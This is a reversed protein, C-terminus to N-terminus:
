LSQGGEGSDGDGIGIMLSREFHLRRERFSPLMAREREDIRQNGGASLRTVQRDEMVIGVELEDDADGTLGVFPDDRSAAGVSAGGGCSTSGVTGPRRRVGMRHYTPTASVAPSQAMDVAQPPKKPWAGGTTVVDGRPAAAMVAESVSFPCVILTWTPSRRVTV